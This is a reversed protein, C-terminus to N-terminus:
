WSSIIQYSGQWSGFSTSTIGNATCSAYSGLGSYIVVRVTKTVGNTVYGSHVAATALNTDDTYYSGNCGWISGTTSGTVVFDYASGNNGRYAVLNGLYTCSATSQTLTTAASVCGSANFAWVYRTYATNCTLGTETKALATGMDTADAYVNTTGWKYGTAGTAANWNWVVQTQSPAHTGSTPAAQTVLTATVDLRTPSEVGNVTQSAWYHQGNVLAETGTYLTGGTAASYWKIASGSTTKLDAVTPTQAILSGSIFLILSILLFQKM